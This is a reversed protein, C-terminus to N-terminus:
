NYFRKVIDIDKSIEFDYHESSESGLSLGYLIGTASITAHTVLRLSQEIDTKLYVCSGIPFKLEIKM